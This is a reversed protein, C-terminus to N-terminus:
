VVEWQITFLRESTTHQTMRQELSDILEDRKDIIEDEVDFIQQRQRRQKKEMERIEKQIAQQQEMTAAQRSERKLGKIKSKTDQLDQESALIKDDAWKELKDREEQFFRNNIDIVSSIVAEQHRKANQELQGPPTSQSIVQPMGDSDCQFLKECVEQEIPTGRHDLGTFILHEESQFSDIRLLDLALWGSEGKMEEILSIKGEHHSIDFRILSDPTKREKAQEIVHEGLPHNMRYIHEACSERDHSNKSVLQYHGTKIEKTPPQNLIFDHQEDNFQARGNIVHKSSRWFMKSMRDLRQTAKALQLKLLDHVDEDFHEMLLQQTVEMKSSIQEELEEQLQKFGYQIEDPTRCTQYIELIRKEFDIGSEIKGLVDDSSGFVGNFLNFKDSLLELVRQDAGNNKNVFNVVVVDHKQGYRHCRGIRQEVRQPNWPLDYNIVLSCFQLNVGEAAAETAIMIEGEERFFDIIATRRDVPKSGSIKNRNEPNKWWQQYIETSQPDSNTGNFSVLKGHFGNKDLYRQLYEQTRRSETFIIAKRAGGIKEMEAFGTEIAQLLQETKADIKISEALNIYESLEDIEAELLDLDIQKEEAPEAETEEIQELYEDEIEDGQILGALFYDSELRNTTVEGDKLKTLRDKIRVLTGTVAYTSSALLKRLILTTLHRQSVPLAYSEERMLFATLSDYLRQEDASPVYPQTFTRRETYRIYELVDKRLTRKSFASLRDRLEGLNGSAHLYQKRFAKPDGFIHEDILSTLGFLEMLSNQLPTATLLLKQRGSLARALTQGMRNSKQHANRLKHAEDFVVLNYPIARLEDELRSAYHYSLIIIKNQQFPRYVGEKKLRRVTAADLIQTPLNFKETLEAAWQRRLSAPCIILLNRKREAWYQSLVLGAEITKGLGVEDALIVGKSLPSRLAFLAAEIQHPNLDISADFMSASLREVDEGTILRTLEHAFYKAHHDTIM